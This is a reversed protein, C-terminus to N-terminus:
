VRDSKIITMLSFKPRKAQKATGDTMNQCDKVKKVSWARLDHNFATSGNFMKSMSTV